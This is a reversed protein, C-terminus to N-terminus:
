FLTVGTFIMWRLLPVYDSPFEGEPSRAFMSRGGDKLYRLLRACSGRGNLGLASLRAPPCQGRVHTDQAAVYQGTTAAPFVSERMLLFVRTGSWGRAGVPPIRHASYGENCDQARTEGGSRERGHAGAVHRELAREVDATLRLVPQQMVA